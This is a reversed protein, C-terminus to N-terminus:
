RKKNNIIKSLVVLVADHQADPIYVKHDIHTM